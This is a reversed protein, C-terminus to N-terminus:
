FLAVERAVGPQNDKLASLYDAVRDLMAQAIKTQWGMADITVPARTMQMRELLLPIAIIERSKTGVAQQGLTLRHRMAWTSVVHPPHDEARRARRSIKGDLAVIDPEDERLGEVWATFCACSTAPDLANMVDNLMDHLPIGRRFPLM